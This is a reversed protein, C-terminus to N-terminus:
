LKYGYFPLSKQLQQELMDEDSPSIFETGIIEKTDIPRSTFPANMLFKVLNAIEKDGSLVKGTTDIIAVINNKKDKISIQKSIKSIPL